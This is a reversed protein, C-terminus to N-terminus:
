KKKEPIEGLRKKMAAAKDKKGTKEYFKQLRILAPRVEPSRAGYNKELIYLAERFCHEADDMKNVFFYILGLNNWSTANGPHTMGFAKQRVGLAEKNLTEAEGFNGLHTTIMALNNLATALQEPDQPQQRRAIKVAQRAYKEAKYFQQQKYHSTVKENVEQWSLERDAASSSLPILCCLLLGLVYGPFNM